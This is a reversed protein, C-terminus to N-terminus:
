ENPHRIERGLPPAAQPKRMNPRARRRRAIARAACIAANAADAIIAGETMGAASSAGSALPRTPAPLPVPV